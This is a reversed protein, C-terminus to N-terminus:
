KPLNTCTLLMVPDYNNELWKIFRDREPRPLFEKLPTIISAQQGSRKGYPIGTWFERSKNLVALRIIQTQGEIQGLISAKESLM